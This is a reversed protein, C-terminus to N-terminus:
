YDRMWFQWPPEWDRVKEFYRDQAQHDHLRLTLAKAPNRQKSYVRPLGVNVEDYARHIELFRVVRHVSNLYCDNFAVVGGVDLMKDIYFFDLLVYDFAHFGDIYAFQCRQTRSMEPLALYSPEVVMRHRDGFGARQVAHFGLGDYETFQNPDVSAVDGGGSLMALTSTGFAMGVEISLAPRREGVVRAIAESFERGIQSHVAVANSDRDLTTGSELMRDLVDPLM